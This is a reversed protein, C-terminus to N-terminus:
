ASPRQFQPATWGEVQDVYLVELREGIRLSDPEAGVVNSVLRIGEDLEVVAVIPSSDFGSPMPHYPVTYSYLTGKGSLETTTWDLTHCHPCAPGPPHRIVGCNTCRQALLKRQRTGDWFFETDRSMAPLPRGKTSIGPIANNDM